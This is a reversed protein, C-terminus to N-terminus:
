RMRYIGAMSADNYTRGATNVAMIIGQYATSCIRMGGAGATM